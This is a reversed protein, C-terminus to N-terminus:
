ELVQNKKQRKRNKVILLYTGLKAHRIIKYISYVSVFNTTDEQLSFNAPILSVTIINIQGLEVILSNNWYKVINKKEKDEEM